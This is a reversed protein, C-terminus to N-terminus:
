KREEVEYLRRYKEAIKWRLFVDRQLIVNMERGLCQGTLPFETSQPSVQYLLLGDHYNKVPRVIFVCRKMRSFWIKKYTSSVVIPAPLYCLNDDDKEKYIYVDENKQECSFISVKAPLLNQVDSRRLTFTKEQSAFISEPIYFVIIDRFHYERNETLEQWCDKIGSLIDRLSNQEESAPSLVILFGDGKQYTWRLEYEDGDRRVTLNRIVYNTKSPKLEVM